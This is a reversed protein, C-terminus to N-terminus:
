CHMVLVHHNTYINYIERWYSGSYCISLSKIYTALSKVHMTNSGFIKIELKIEM